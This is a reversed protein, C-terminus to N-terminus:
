LLPTQSINKLYWGDINFTNDYYQTIYIAYHSVWAIWANKQFYYELNNKKTYQWIPIRVELGVEHYCMIGINPQNTGQNNTPSICVYM